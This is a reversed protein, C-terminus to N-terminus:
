FKKITQHSAVLVAAFVPWILTSLIAQGILHRLPIFQHYLAHVAFILCQGILLILFVYPMQQQVSYLRGINRFHSTLYVVLVFVVAYQGLPADLLSDLLLGLIWTFVLSIQNPLKWSWFILWLLYWEPRYPNFWIPLQVLTLWLCVSYSVLIIIVELGQAKKRM